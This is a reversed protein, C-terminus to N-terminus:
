AMTLATANGLVTNGSTRGGQPQFSARNQICRYLTMPVAMIQAHIDLLTVATEGQMPSSAGESGWCHVIHM